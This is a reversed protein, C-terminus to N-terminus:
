RVEDTKNKVPTFAFAFVATLFTIVYQFITTLPIKIFTIADLGWEFQSNGGLVLGLIVVVAGCSWQLKKFFSPSEQQLRELLEKVFEIFAAIINM